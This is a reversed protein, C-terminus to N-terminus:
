STGLAACLLLLVLESFGAFPGKSRHGSQSVLVVCCAFWAGEGLARFLCFFELIVSKRGILAAFRIRDNFDSAVCSRRLASFLPLQSGM